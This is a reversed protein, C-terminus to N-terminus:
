YKKEYKWGRYNRTNSVSIEKLKGINSCDYDDRLILSVVGIGLSRM